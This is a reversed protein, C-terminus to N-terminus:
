RYSDREMDSIRKELADVRGSLRSYVATFVILILVELIELM